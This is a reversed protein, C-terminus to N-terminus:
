RGTMFSGLASNGDALLLSASPSSRAMMV